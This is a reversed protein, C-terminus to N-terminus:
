LDQRWTPVARHFMQYIPGSAESPGIEKTRSEWGKTPKWLRSPDRDVHVQVKEKLKALKLQREQEEQEKNQNEQLKTMLHQSDRQQFRKIGEAALRRRQEREAQEQAEKQLVHLEEEEKKQRAHSEVMLKMELQRRREEKARKRRQIEDRVRREQERDMQQKRCSRWADLREAAEKRQELQKLRLAAVTAEDPEKTLGERQQHERQLELDRQKAARWRHIAERKKEQLHCLQLYWEEHLRINEETKDPLYLKAEKRYSPKGNHKTWVKMFSQHDYKDWGGQPGGNQQLFTELATVEAPLDRSDKRGACPGASQLDRGDAKVALSWVDIKQDFACIEQWLNREEKLLEEFSQHQTDKFINISNEIDIMTEKLKDLLDPSSKMDTLQAQFRYVCNRIKQLEKQVKMIDARLDAKLNNHIEEFASFDKRRITERDHKSELKRLRESERLFDAVSMRARAQSFYDHLSYHLRPPSTRDSRIVTVM